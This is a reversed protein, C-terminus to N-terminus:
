SMLHSSVDGVHIDGEGAPCVKIGSGVLGCSCPEEGGSSYECKNEPCTDNSIRKRGPACKGANMYFSECQAAAVVPDGEKKSLLPECLGKLCTTGLVCKSDTISCPEHEKKLLACKNQSCFLGPNCDVHDACDQGEEKGVCAKNTCNKSFCQTDISCYEGPDQTTLKTPDTCDFDGEEDTLPCVYDNKCERLGVQVLNETITRRACLTGPLNPDAMYEPCTYCWGRVLLLLLPLLYKM